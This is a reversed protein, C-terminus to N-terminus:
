EGLAVREFCVIEITGGIKKACEKVYKQITLDPNKVFAQETLCQEKYFKNMMGTAIQKQIKEPKCSAAAKAKYIEMEHEIVDKDVSGRNTAIPNMAAVQMAVDRGCTVFTEDTPDIGDLNFDVLVGIKGNGHIYSVVCDAKHFNVYSIKINEGLVHIADILIEEVTEDGEKAAKLAEVDTARSALAADAFRECYVRFKENIAVFDTECKVLVITGCTGNDCVKAVVCGENTDRGAKKSVAALGQKRLVDVADGMDGDAEVLARKCEMMGAGTLERLDKVLSASITMM